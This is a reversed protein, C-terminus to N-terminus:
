IELGALRLAHGLFLAHARRLGLREDFYASTRLGVLMSYASEAADSASLGFRRPTQEFLAELQKKFRGDFDAKKRHLEKHHVALGFVELMLGIESKGIARRGFFSDALAEIQREPTEAATERVRDLIWNAVFDFYFSLAADKGRFYYLLHSPSMSAGRAIDALTCNAYGKQLIFEHLCRLISGRREDLRAGGARAVDRM